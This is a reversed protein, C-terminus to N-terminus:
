HAGGAALGGEPKKRLFWSGGESSSEKLLWSIGFPLPRDHLVVPSSGQVQYWDMGDLEFLTNNKTGKITNYRFHGPKGLHCGGSDLSM